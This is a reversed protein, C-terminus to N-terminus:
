PRLHEVAAINTTLKAEEPADVHEVGGGTLYVGNFEKKGAIANLVTKAEVCEDRLIFQDSIASRGCLDRVLLGSATFVPQQQLARNENSFVKDPM